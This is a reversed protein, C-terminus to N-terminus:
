KTAFGKLIIRFLIDFTDHDEYLMEMVSKNFSVNQENVCSANKFWKKKDVIKQHKNQFVEKITELPLSCFSTNFSKAHDIYGQNMYFTINTIHFHIHTTDMPAITIHDGSFVCTGTNPMYDSLFHIYLYGNSTISVSLDYHGIRIKYDPCIFNMKGGKHVVFIKTGTYPKCQKLLTAVFKNYDKSGSRIRAPASAANDKVRCKAWLANLEACEDKSLSAPAAKTTAAASRRTQVM